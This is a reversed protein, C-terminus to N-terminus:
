AAASAPEATSPPMSREQEALWDLVRQYTKVTFNSGREVNALFKSDRVAEESISSMSRGTAAAFAKARVLVHARIETETIQPAATM